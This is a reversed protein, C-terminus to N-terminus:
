GSKNRFGTWVTLALLVVIGAVLAMGHNEITGYILTLVMLGLTERPKAFVGILVALMLAIALALAVARAIALVVCAALLYGIFRM